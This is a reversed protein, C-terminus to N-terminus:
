SLEELIAELVLETQSLDKFYYDPNTTLIARRNEITGTGVGITRVNLSRGCQIDHITDGIIVIQKARFKLGEADEIKKVAIAPLQYRDWHDDAFVGFRFSEWLGVCGLKVKAGELLNGTLLGLYVDPYGRLVDILGRVGPLVKVENARTKAKKSALEIYKLSLRALNQEIVDLTHGAKAFLERYIQHDTKGGFNIKYLPMSPFYHAISAYFSEAWLTGGKILTGDIDFLVLRKAM